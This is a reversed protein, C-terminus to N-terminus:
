PTRLMNLSRGTPQLTMAVVERLADEVRDPDTENRLHAGSSEVIVQADYRARNFRHDVLEQVRVLLPRAVSAAALTAAAVSLTSTNSVVTTATTVVLVYIAIVMGTVIAYPITRSIIRDIEYLRDRLVALGVAVPVLTAGATFVADSPWSDTPLAATVIFSALLVISSFALWRIQTRELGSSRRYRMVVSVVAAMSLLLLTVLLTLTAATIGTGWPLPHLPNPHSVGDATILEPTFAFIVVLAGTSAIVSRWVWRWRRSPLGDPFVLLVLSTSTVLLPLFTVNSLWAAVLAYGTAADGRHLAIQLTASELGVLGALAGSVLFLWGVVNSPRRATLVIGIVAFALYPLLTWGQGLPGLLVGAVLGVGFVGILVLRM